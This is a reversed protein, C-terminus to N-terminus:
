RPRRDTSSSSGRSATCRGNGSPPRHAPFHSGPGFSAAQTRGLTNSPLSAARGVSSWTSRYRRTFLSHVALSRRTFLSHAALSCRTFPSHVAVSRRTFLSHVAPTAARMDTNKGIKTAVPSNNM